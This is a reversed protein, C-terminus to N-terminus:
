AKSRERELVWQIAKDIHQGANDIACGNTKATDILDRMAAYVDQEDMETALYGAWAVVQDHIMGKRWDQPNKRAAGGNTGSPFYETNVHPELDSRRIPQVGLPGDDTEWWEYGPSPPILVYGGRCKSDLGPGFLNARSKIDEDIRYHLHWGGNQTAVMRTDPMWPQIEGGNRPDVDIVLLGDGTPTAIASDPMDQWWAAVRGVESSADLVGHRTRPRKTKPDVPFVRWGAHAYNTAALGLSM